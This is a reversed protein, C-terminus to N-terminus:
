LGAWRYLGPRVVLLVGEAALRDLDEELRRVNAWLGGGEVKGWVEELALAAEDFLVSRLQFVRARDRKSRIRGGLALLERTASSGGTGLTNLSDVYRDAAARVHEDHVDPDGRLRAYAHAAQVLHDRLPRSRVLLEEYAGQPLGLQAPVSALAERM